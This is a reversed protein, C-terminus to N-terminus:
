MWRRRQATKNYPLAKLVGEVDIGAGTVFIHMHPHWNLRRSYFM